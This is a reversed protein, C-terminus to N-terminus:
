RRAQLENSAADTKAEDTEGNTVSETVPLLNDDNERLWEVSLIRKSHRTYYIHYPDGNKLALFAAQKVTFRVSDEGDGIRLYYTAANQAARVSLEIRGEIEAVWLNLLDASLRRSRLWIWGSLGMFFAIVAILIVLVPLTMMAFNVAGAVFTVTVIGLLLVFAGGLGYSLQERNLRAIQRRTLKGAANAELDDDDFAFASMLREEYKKPKNKDM